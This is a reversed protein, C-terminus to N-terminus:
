SQLLLNMAADINGKTTKLVRRASSETVNPLGISLIQKVSDALFENLVNQTSEPHVDTVMQLNFRKQQVEIAEETEITNLIAILNVYSVYFEPFAKRCLFFPGPPM